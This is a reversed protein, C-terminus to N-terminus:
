NITISSRSMYQMLQLAIAAAGSAEFNIDLNGETAGAEMLEGASKTRADVYGAGM